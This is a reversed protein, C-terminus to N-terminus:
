MTFVARPAIMSRSATTAHRPIRVALRTRRRHTTDAAAARQGGRALSATCRWSAGCMPYTTTLEPGSRPQSEPSGRPRSRRTVWEPRTGSRARPHVPQYPLRRRCRRLSPWGLSCRVTSVDIRRGLDLNPRSGPLGDRSRGGTPRSGALARRRAPHLVQPVRNECTLLRLRRLLSKRSTIVNTGACAPIAARECQAHSYPAPLFGPGARRTAASFGHGCQHRQLM